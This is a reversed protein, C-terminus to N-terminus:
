LFGDFGDLNKDLGMEIVGRPLHCIYSQYYADGKIIQKHDGTGMIGVAIGNAAHIIERPIYIPLYGVLVRSKDQSKWNKAYNFELDFSLQKCEDLLQNLRLNGLM